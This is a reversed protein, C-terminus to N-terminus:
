WKGKPCNESQWTAKTAIPCGCVSCSNDSYDYFTCRSCIHVRDNYITQETKEFDNKPHKYSAKLLNYAKIILNPKKM